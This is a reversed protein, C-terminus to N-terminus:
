GNEGRTLYGPTYETGEDPALMGIEELTKRQIETYIPSLELENSSRAASSMVKHNTVTLDKYAKSHSNYIEVLDPLLEGSLSKEIFNNQTKTLNYLMVHGKQQKCQKIATIIDLGPQINTQINFFVATFNDSSKYDQGPIVKVDIHNKESLAKAMNGTEVGYKSVIGVVDLGKIIASSLISKLRPALDAEVPPAEEEGAYVRFDTRLNHKRLATKFLSYWM